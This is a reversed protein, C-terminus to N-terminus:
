DNSVIGMEKAIDKLLNKDSITKDSVSDIARLHIFRKEILMECLREELTSYLPYILLTSHKKGEADLRAASQRMTAEVPYLEAYFAIDAASLNYGTSTATISLLAVKIQPQTQFQGVRFQKEKSSISGDLRVYEIHLDVCHKEMADLMVAHHAFAM